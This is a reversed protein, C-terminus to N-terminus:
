SIRKTAYVNIYAGYGFYDFFRCPIIQAYEVFIDSIRKALGNLHLRRSIANYRFRSIYDIKEINLGSQELLSTLGKETFYNVHEPVWLCSNDRTGLIKVSMSNFNPVAIVVAGGVELLDVVRGIMSRPNIVHELVQSLYIVGFKEETRYDEFMVATPSFGNMAEFVANEYASPNLAVVSYGKSVLARTGWGFGAGVDLAQRSNSANASSVIEVMREADISSNPFAREAAVVEQLSTPKTLGHGSIAYIKRLYSPAPPPSLFGADCNKCVMINFSLINRNASSSFRKTRWPRIDRSGCAICKEIAAGFEQDGSYFEMRAPDPM